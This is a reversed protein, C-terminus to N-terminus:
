EQSYVVNEKHLEVVKPLCQCTYIVLHHGLVCVKRPNRIASKSCLLLVYAVANNNTCTRSVAEHCVIPREIGCSQSLVAVTASDVAALGPKTGVVVAGNGTRSQIQAAALAIKFVVSLCVSVCVSLCGSM